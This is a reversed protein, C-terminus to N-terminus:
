ETIIRSHDRKWLDLQTVAEIAEQLTFYIFVREQCAGCKRTGLIIETSTTLVTRHITCRAYLFWRQYGMRGERYQSLYDQVSFLESSIVISYLSLLSVETYQVDQMCSDDKICSEEREINLLHEFIELLNGELLIKTIADSVWWIMDSFCDPFVKILHKESRHRDQKGLSKHCAVVTQFKLDNVM